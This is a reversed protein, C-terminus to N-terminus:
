REASVSTPRALRLKFPIERIKQAAAILGPLVHV